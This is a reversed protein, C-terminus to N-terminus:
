RPRRRWALARAEAATLGIDRLDREELALLQRREEGRALMGALWAPWLGHAAAARPPTVPTWDPLAPPPVPAIHM